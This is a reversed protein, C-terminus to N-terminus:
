TTANKILGKLEPQKSFDLGIISDIQVTVSADLKQQLLYTRYEASNDLLHKEMIKYMWYHLSRDAAVAEKYLFPKLEGLKISVPNKDTKAM